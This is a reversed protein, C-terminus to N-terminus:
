FIWHRSNPVNQHPDPKGRSHWTQDQVQDPDEARWAWISHISYIWCRRGATITKHVVNQVLLCRKLGSVNMIVFMEKPKQRFSPLLKSESSNHPQSGHGLLSEPGFRGRFEATNGLLFGWFKPLIFGLRCFIRREAFHKISWEMFVRIVVLISTRTGTHSPKTGGSIRVHDQKWVRKSIGSKLVNEVQFVYIICTGTYTTCM